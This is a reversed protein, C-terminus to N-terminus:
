PKHPGSVKNNSKQQELATKHTSQHDIGKGYLSHSRCWATRGLSVINKGCVVILFRQRVTLLVTLLTSCSTTWFKKKKKQQMCRGNKHEPQEQRLNDKMLLSISQQKQTQLSIYAFEPHPKAKMM